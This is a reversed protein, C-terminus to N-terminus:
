GHTSVGTKNPRPMHALAPHKPEFEASMRATERREILIPNTWVMDMIQLTEHGTLHTAKQAHDCFKSWAEPDGDEPCRRAWYEVITNLNAKVNGVSGRREFKHRQLSVMIRRHERHGARRKTRAGNPSKKGKSGMM